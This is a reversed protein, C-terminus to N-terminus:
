LNMVERVLREVKRVEELALFGYYTTSESVNTSHRSTTVTVITRSRFVLDGGGNGFIWMDRRHMNALRAANYNEMEVGGFLGAQWVIARRNTLAYCTRGARWLAMLPTAIGGALFILGFFGVVLVNAFGQGPRQPQVLSPVIFVAMVVLFVITGLIPYFLSRILVIRRSPMGVWYLKEGKGLEEEIRQRLHEPLDSDQVNIAEMALDEDPEELREVPKRKSRPRDEEADQEPTDRLRRPAVPAPTAPVEVLAAGLDEEEAAPIKIVGKCGPCKVAKGALHDPAKFSKKCGPCAASVPM